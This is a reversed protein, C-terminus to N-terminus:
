GVVILYFGLIMLVNGAVLQMRHELSCIRTRAKHIVDPKVLATLIGVGFVPLSQGVAFSAFLLLGYASLEQAAVVGALALLGEGCSPCGPVVLLGCLLGLLVAGPLTAKQLRDGFGRWKEPWLHTSLVGSVCLGTFILSVGLIWFLYKNFRLLKGAGGGTHILIVGLLVYSLALGIAILAAVLVGRKKSLGPGVVCGIALPLRIITCSGLSATAGLWLVVCLAWVPSESILRDITPM